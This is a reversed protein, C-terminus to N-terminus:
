PLRACADMRCQGINLRYILTKDTEPFRFDKQEFSVWAAWEPLRFGGQVKQVIPSMNGYRDYVVLSYREENRTEFYLAGDESVVRADKYWRGLEVRPANKEFDSEAGLRGSILGRIEKMTFDLSRIRWRLRDPDYLRTEAESHYGLRSDDEALRLLERSVRKEERALRLMEQYDGRERALYFDCIHGASLFQLRLAKMVGLELRKSRDKRYKDYMKDLLDKGDADKVYMPEVMMHALEAVEELSHNEACEGLCDGNPETDPLWTKNLPKGQVRAYLPWAPGTAFPGFYQSRNSLPYNTYGETFGEWLKQMAEADEGWSAKALRTLFENEDTSFDEYALAGAAMNMPGPYNGFYWCQMVDSVGCDHMAKYKRYLLGPAPVFPVTAVEHSCGVQIKASLETGADVASQAFNRFGEAPGPVSLWYDGGVRVKGLQEKECGSEFNYQLIVGEPCHEALEYVWGCRSVQQKPHYIWGIVEADSGAARIGDIMAKHSDYLIKWKPEGSCHPCKVPSDDYERISSLCTTPREGHSINLLGGLGPVQTFIDQTSERVYQKASETHLCMTYRDSSVQAGRWDPHEKFLIDDETLYIPEITFLWVKIGYRGCKEVTRRLKELRRDRLSDAETFSTRALERFKVSIWLGNIGEYQLRKLYADPYYDIDDTLEDHFYPARKIPGFFCRSIRHKLWPESLPVSVRESPTEITKLEEIFEWNEQKAEPYPPLEQRCSWLISVAVLIM